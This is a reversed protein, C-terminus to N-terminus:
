QLPASAPASGLKWLWGIPRLGLRAAVGQSSRNDASTSYFVIRGSAAVIPAWTATVAAAHGKGRFDPHTWTGAEVARTANRATHCIAIVQAGCRAMAWPGLLGDLLDDWEAAEWNGPNADRLAEVDQHASSIIEAGSGFTMEGDVVYSPGSSVSVAGFQGGVLERCRDLAAPPEAPDTRAPASAVTEWLAEALSESVAAGFATAMGDVAAAIVLRPGDKIRGRDDSPWITAIEIQLLEIDSHPQRAARDHTM